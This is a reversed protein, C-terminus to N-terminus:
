RIIQGERGHAHVIYVSETVHFGSRFYLNLAQINAVQTGVRLVGCRGACRSIFSGTLARGIGLGQCSRDVGILDLVRVIKGGETVSLSTLFGVPKAARVAVLLLDGRRGRFCSEVWAQKVKNATERSIRPDLHFRSFVFATGAIRCVADEDAPKALRIRVDAIVCATDTESPERELTIGTDVVCFGASTFARVVDVRDTPIKAFFFSRRSAAASSAVADLVAPIGDSTAPVVVKFADIGLVQGLWTDAQVNVLKVEKQM